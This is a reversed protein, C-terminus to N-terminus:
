WSGGGGGGGGGGSFGGGSSGSGGPSSVLASTASSSFSHLSSAFGIASFTGMQNDSYWSPPVTYIDQFQKAWEKELGFVMAYPLLKEFTEPNKAPANHFEIRREEAVHIYEKLGLLKRELELGSDTRNIGPKFICGFVGFLICAGSFVFGIKSGALFWVFLGPNIAFFFALVLQQGATVSNAAFSSVLGGKDEVLYGKQRLSAVVDKKVTNATIYFVNKLESESRGAIGDLLEKTFKPLATSDKDTAAFSYEGSHKKILLHGRTALWIIEASLDKNKVVGGSLTSAELATIDGPDYEAIVVNKQYYARRYYFYAIRARLLWYAFLATAPLYWYSLIVLAWPMSTNPVAPAPTVIGKPFGVAITMGEGPSLVYAPGFFTVETQDKLPHSVTTSSECSANSGTAGCYSAISLESETLNTPIIVHAVASGIPVQWGSGTVNWYIEDRDSFQGIANAATYTINYEHVGTIVTDADGIKLSVDGGQESVMLSKGILADLLQKTFISPHSSSHPHNGTFAYPNGNEDFVSFDTLELMGSAGAVQTQPIQRIIGHRDLFAFDYLISETVNVTGDKALIVDTRFSNINEQGPTTEAYATAHLIGTLFIGLILLPTLLTLFAAARAYWTVKKYNSM